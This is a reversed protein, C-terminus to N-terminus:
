RAPGRSARGAAQRAWFAMRDTTEKPVKTARATSVITARSLSRLWYRAAEQQLGSVEGVTEDEQEPLGHGVFILMTSVVTDEPDVGEERFGDYDNSPPPHLQPTDFRDGGLPRGRDGAM